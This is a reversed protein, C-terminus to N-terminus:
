LKLEPQDNRISAMKFGAGGIFDIQSEAAQLGIEYTLNRSKQHAYFAAPTADNLGVSTVVATKWGKGQAHTILSYVPKGEPDVGVTNNITKVGTALATGGAASCTIFHSKSHTTSFGASPFQTFLLRNRVEGITPSLYYETGEVHNMGMGDGICYFIYKPQKASVTLLMLWFMM